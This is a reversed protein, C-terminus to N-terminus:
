PYWNAGFGLGSMALDSSEGTDLNEATTSLRRRGVRPGKDWGCAAPLVAPWPVLRSLRRM